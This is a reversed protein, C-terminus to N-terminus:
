FYISTIVKNEKDAYFTYTKDNFSVQYLHIGFRISDDDLTIKTAGINALDEVKLPMAVANGNITFKAHFANKPYKEDIQKEFFVQASIVKDDKTWCRIGVSDIIYLTIDYDLSIARYPESFYDIFHTKIVNSWDTIKYQDIIVGETTINIKKM